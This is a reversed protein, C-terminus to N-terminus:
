NWGSYDSSTSPLAATGDVTAIASVAGGSVSGMTGGDGGENNTGGVGTKVRRSACKRSLVLLVALGVLAAVGGAVLATSSGSGEAAEVQPPM